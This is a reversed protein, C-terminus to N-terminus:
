LKHGGELYLQILLNLATNISENSVVELVTREMGDYRFPGEDTDNPLIPRVIRAIFMDPTGPRFIVRVRLGDLALAAKFEEETM